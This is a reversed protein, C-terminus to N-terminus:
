SAFRGEKIRRILAQYILDRMPKEDLYRDIAKAEFTVRSVEDRCFLVKRERIVQYALLAPAQNLIVVDVEDTHLAQAARGILDLQKDFYKEAPVQFGFLVAIDVDSLPGVKNTAYSGFLYIAM